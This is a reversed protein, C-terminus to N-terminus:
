YKNIICEYNSALLKVNFSVTHGPWISIFGQKNLSKSKCKREGM